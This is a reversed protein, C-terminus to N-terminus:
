YNIKTPVLGKAIIYLILSREGMERRSKAQKSEKKKRKAPIKGDPQRWCTEVRSEM